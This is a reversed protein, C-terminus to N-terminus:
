AQTEQATTDPWDQVRLAEPWEAPNAGARDRFGMILAPTGDKEAFASDVTVAGLQKVFCAVGAARCQQITAHAWALDFPRAEPGSEGGVIIWDLPGIHGSLPYHGEKVHLPSCTSGGPLRTRTFDVPGLAPEYSVFRKAAPTQLLLPIRADATAQDEVSVGLWVNPLPWGVAGERRSHGLRVVADSVACWRPEKEGFLYRQMREPRKTLVQYTLHPTLAMIAFAEDRWADAEEIFFDSWSCTFVRRQIGAEADAREWQLPAHFTADKSRVVQTPDQGYRAKDRYMYCYKCGQSVKRCGHWPNWTHDTWAINTETGM